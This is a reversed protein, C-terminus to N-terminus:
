TNQPPTFPESQGGPRDLAPLTSQHAFGKAV